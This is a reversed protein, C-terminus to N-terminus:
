IVMFLSQKKIFWSPFVIKVFRILGFNEEPNKKDFRAKCFTYFSIYHLCFLLSFYGLVKQIPNSLLNNKSKDPMVVFRFLKKEFKKFIFFIM